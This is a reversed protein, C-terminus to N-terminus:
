PAEDDSGELEANRTKKALSELTPQAIDFCNMLRISFLGCEGNKIMEHAKEPTYASKYVRESVLADYVDALGVIQAAISNEEGKLGDPYGKGDYKEHHHRVIDMSMNFYDESLVDGVMRLIDCGKTTHSKMLDFEDPTLRGPKLLITDSILIKGIDHMVSAQAILNVTHETIGYEPYNEMILTALIRSFGRIRQLHFRSERNRFEIIECLHSIIKDDQMQLNGEQQKMVLFQKRMAESQEKVREELQMRSQYLDIWHNAREKLVLPEYPKRIVASAGKRYCGLEAEPSNQATMMVIVPMFQLINNKSMADLIAFGDKEPIAVDIVVCAMQRRDTIITKLAEFVNSNESVEYRDSFIQKFTELNGGAHGVIIIQKKIQAM